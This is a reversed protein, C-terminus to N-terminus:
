NQVYVHMGDITSMKSSCFHSAIDNLEQKWCNGIFLDNARFIKTVIEDCTPCKLGNTGYVLKQSCDSRCMSHGCPRFILADTINNTGCIVCDSHYDRLTGNLIMFVNDSITEDHLHLFEYDMIKNEMYCIIIQTLENCITQITNKEMQPITLTLPCLIDNTFVLTSDHKLKWVNRIANNCYDILKLQVASLLRYVKILGISTFVTASFQSEPLTDDREWKIENQDIGDFLGNNIQSNITQENSM